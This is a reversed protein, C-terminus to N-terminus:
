QSEVSTPKPRLKSRLELVDLKLNAGMLAEFEERTITLSQLEHPTEKGAMHDAWSANLFRLAIRYTAEQRTM